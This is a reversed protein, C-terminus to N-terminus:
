LLRSWRSFPWQSLLRALFACKHNLCHFRAISRFNGPFQARFTLEIAIDERVAVIGLDALTAIVEAVQGDLADLSQLQPTINALGPAGRLSLAEDEASRMRRLALNMRGLPKAAELEATGGASNAPSLPISPQSVPGTPVPIATIATAQNPNESSPPLSDSRRPPNTTSPHKASNPVGLM